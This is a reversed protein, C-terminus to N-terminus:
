PRGAIPTRKLGRPESGRQYREHAPGRWFVVLRCRHSASLEPYTDERKRRAAQRLALGSELDGRPRPHGDRRVPSVPTADVALQAGHWLPLGNAVVALQRADAVPVDLSMQSLMVNTAVRAGAERCIRAAARELPIGRPRLVGANACAARHDGLADLNRGCRCRRPGPPIEM